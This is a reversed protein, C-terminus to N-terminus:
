GGQAREAAARLFAEAEARSRTRRFPPLSRVLTWNYSAFALRRDLVAVVGQDDATRILRGVGQALLTAARPLDVARFADGGAARVLDRRAGLLPDNPRPFPLKDITVLLVAAGPIDVGQWFSQTACVVGVEGAILRRVLEPRPLEDQVLVEIGDLRARLAEAAATMGARSTFLALTRGRAAEVLAALEAQMAEAYGPARPEPLDVACYLLGQADYDFPSDVVVGTWGGPERLGLRWATPAFDGGVALTASTAVLTTHEPLRGGILPGVDVPAIRLAPGGRGREVWAVSDGGRGTMGLAADVEVALAAALRGVQQKRGAAADTRAEVQALAGPIEGALAGVRSLAVALDGAGPVVREEGADELAGALAVAAAEIRPPIDSDPVVSRLRGALHRLRGASLGIGFAGAAVDEMAHAEDLVIVGHQPLVGGGTELDLAYLHSNVVVVDASLARRRAREAFCVEGFACNAAGPCEVSDVSAAGWVRDPVATPFDSRDGTPTVWAWWALAELDPDATGELSDQELGEAVRAVCLYNARGKLMAYRFRVGLGALADAVLPLDKGVLQEQLAKTATAVVVRRPVDDDPDEDPGPGTGSEESSRGGGDPGDGAVAWLVAPILYALSKGTGTGAEVLLHERQAIARTVAELMIQQGPRELGGPLGAVVAALAEVPDPAGGGPTPEQEGM